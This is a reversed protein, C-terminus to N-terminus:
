STWSIIREHKNMLLDVWQRYDLLEVNKSAKQVLGRAELDAKLSYVDIKSEVLGDVYDKMTVAVCADQIHLVAVREGKGTLEKIIRFLSRHYEALSSSTIIILL